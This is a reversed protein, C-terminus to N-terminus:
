ATSLPYTQSFSDFLATSYIVVYILPIRDEKELLDNVSLADQLYINWALQM